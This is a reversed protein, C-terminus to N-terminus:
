NITYSIMPIFRFLAGFRVGAPRSVAVTGGQSDTGTSGGVAFLWYVPNIRGYANYIGLRLRGEKGKRTVTSKVFSVDLRHYDPFRTNNIDTGFYTRRNLNNVTGGVGVPVTVPRGTQYIWALALQWKKGVKQRLQLALDHPREFDFPFQEGDNLNPYVRFSRSYTYAFTLFTGPTLQAEVYNELGYATGDGNNEFQAEWEDSDLASFQRGRLRVLRTMRRYYAASEILLGKTQFRASVGGGGSRSFPLEDTLPLWQTLPLGSNANVVGHLDQSTLDFFARASVEDSVRWNIALRPEAFTYRYATTLNNYNSVRLGSVVEVKDSLSTRLEAHVSNVIDKNVPASVVNELEGARLFSRGPLISRISSQFGFTVNSNGGPLNYTDHVRAESVHNRFKFMTSESFGGSERFTEKNNVSSAYRTLNLGTKRILGNKGPKFYTLGLTRNGYGLANSGQFSALTRADVAAGFFDEGFYSSITLKRNNDYRKTLKLNADVMGGLILPGSGSLYLPLTLLTIPASHAVRGGIAYSWSTDRLAGTQARAATLLGFEKERFKNESSGEKSTFSVVSSLRGGYRSPIGEKYVDVNRIIAPNFVSLFGFLHTPNYIPSDDLLLLNEEAGGGRVYIDAMGEQGGSIGPYFTLAKLLDPQGMLVTADKLQKVPPSFYGVPRDTQASVFITALAYPRLAIIMNALVDKGPVLLLTDPTYGFGSFVVFLSDAAPDVSLTFFGAADTLTGSQQQGLVSLQVNAIPEFAEADQVIGTLRVVQASLV